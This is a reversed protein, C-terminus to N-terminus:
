DSVFFRKSGHHTRLIYVGPSQMRINTVGSVIGECVRKGQADFVWFSEPSDSTITVMLHSPLVGIGSPLGHPGIGTSIDPVTYSWIDGMYQCAFYPSNSGTFGLVDTAGTAIKRFYLTQGPQLTDAIMNCSMAVASDGPPSVSYSTGYGWGDQLEELSWNAITGFRVWLNIPTTPAATDCIIVTNYPMSPSAFTLSNYGTWSELKACDEEHQGLAKSPTVMMLIVVIVLTYLDKM